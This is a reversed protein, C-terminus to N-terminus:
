INEYANGTRVFGLKLMDSLRWHEWCSAQISNTSIVVFCGEEFNVYYSPHGEKELVDREYIEAGQTDKLGTYQLLEIDEFSKAHGSGSILTDSGYWFDPSEFVFKNEFDIADVEILREDIIDWARFKARM